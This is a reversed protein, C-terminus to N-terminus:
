PKLTFFFSAGQGPTSQAWVRGGHKMVIRKVRALGIGEGVDEGRAQGQFPDFMHKAYQMDFGAGNDRVHYVCEGHTGTNSGVELTAHLQLAMHRWANSLLEWMMQSILAPDGHAQLAEQPVLGRIRRQPEAAQLTSMHALAIEKLDVLQRKLPSHALNAFYLLADSRRNIQSIGAAIRQLYHQGRKTGMDQQLLSAYGSMSILPQRLDHALSYALMQLDETTRELDATRASVRRELDANRRASRERAQLRETIDWAVVVFGSTVDTDHSLAAVSVAVPVLSGDKRRYNWERTEPEGKRPRAFLSDQAAILCGLEAGLENARLQLEEAVHFFSLAQLGLVEDPKYGLLNEAAPNFSSIIGRATVSMVAAMASDLLLKQFKAQSTLAFNLDRERSALLRLDMQRMVQRGLAALAKKQVASLERPMTDIVCLTGIAQGDDTVLPTGAYFRVGPSETVLPNDVFRDDERADGVEFIGTDLIAHACFAIDRPTEPVNLGVQSKFWQRGSDVLSILAIPVGCIHAALETFDDFEAEAATDLIRYRYLAALRETENDPLDAAKM